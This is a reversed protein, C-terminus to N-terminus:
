GVECIRNLETLTIAGHRLIKFKKSTCNVITSPKIAPL